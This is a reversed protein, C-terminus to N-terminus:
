LIIWFQKVEENEYRGIGSFIGGNKVIVKESAINDLHCTVMVKDLNLKRAEDLAKNLMISAYGKRRMSPRVSYGIHGGITKLLPHNINHRLSLMGLIHDEEDVLFFQTDVVKDKPCTLISSYMKCYDIFEFADKSKKLSGTGDFKNDTNLIEEKYAMIEKAYKIDAKVLRLEGM